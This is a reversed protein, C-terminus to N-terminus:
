FTIDSNLLNFVFSAGDTPNIQVFRRVPGGAMNSESWAQERIPGRSYVAYGSGKKGGGGEIAM